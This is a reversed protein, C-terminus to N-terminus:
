GGRREKRRKGEMEGEETEEKRGMVEREGRGRRRKKRRELEGREEQM